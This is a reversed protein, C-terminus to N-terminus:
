AESAISDIVRRTYAEVREANYIDQFNFTLRLSVLNELERNGVVDELENTFESPPVASAAGSQQALATMSFSQLLYPLVYNDRNELADVSTRQFVKVSDDWENLLGRIESPVVVPPEDLAVVEQYASLSFEMAPIPVTSWLLQDLEEQTIEPRQGSIVSRLELMDDRYSRSRELFYGLRDLNVTMEESLAVLEANLRSQESRVNAMQSIQFGIVVGAIVILFEVVVAFWNQERIAQTLNALIM